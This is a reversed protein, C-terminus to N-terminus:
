MNQRIVSYYTPCGTLSPLFSSKFMRNAKAIEWWLYELHGGNWIVVSRDIQDVTAEEDRDDYLHNRQMHALLPWVMENPWILVALSIQGHM